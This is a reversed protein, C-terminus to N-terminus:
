PSRSFSADANGSKELDLADPVMMDMGERESAVLVDPLPLRPSFCGYLHEEEVLCSDLVVSALVKILGLGHSPCVESPELIQV